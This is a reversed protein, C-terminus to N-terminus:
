CFLQLDKCKDLSASSLLQLKQHLQSRLWPGSAVAFYMLKMERSTLSQYPNSQQLLMLNLAQPLIKETVTAQETLKNVIGSTFHLLEETRECM